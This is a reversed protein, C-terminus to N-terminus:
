KWNSPLLRSKEEKSLNHHSKTSDICYVDIQKRATKSFVEIHASRGYHYNDIYCLNGTDNECYVIRGDYTYSTMQFRNTDVLISEHDRPPIKSNFNYQTSLWGNKLLLQEIQSVCYMADVERPNAADKWIESQSVRFIDKNFNLLQAGIDEYCEAMSTSTVEMGLSMYKSGFCQRPSVQWCKANELLHKLQTKMDKNKIKGLPVSYELCRLWLEKSYIVDVQAVAICMRLCDIADRITREADTTNACQGQASVENFYIRCSM